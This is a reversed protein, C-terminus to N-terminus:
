ENEIETRIRDAARLLFSYTTGRIRSENWFKPVGIGSIVYFTGDFDVTLRGAQDPYAFEQAMLYERIVQKVDKKNSM